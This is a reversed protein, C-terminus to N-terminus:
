LYSSKNLDRLLIKFTIISIFVVKHRIFNIKTMFDYKKRNNTKSDLKATISIFFTNKINGCLM